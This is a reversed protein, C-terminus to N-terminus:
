IKMIDVMDDDLDYMHKAFRATLDTFLDRTLPRGETDDALDEDHPIIHAWMLFYIFHPQPESIHEDGYLVLDNLGTSFWCTWVDTFNNMSLIPDRLKKTLGYYEVASIINDKLEEYDKVLFEVGPLEHIDGSLAGFSRM